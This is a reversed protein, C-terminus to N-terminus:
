KQKDREGYQIDVEPGIEEELKDLQEQGDINNQEFSKKVEWYNVVLHAKYLPESWWFKPIKPLDKEAQIMIEHISDNLKQIEEETEEREGKIPKELNTNTCEQINAIMVRNTLEKRYKRGIKTHKAKVVKVPRSEVAHIEERVIQHDHIDLFMGRHDSKCETHFPRMRSRRTAKTIEYTGLKYVIQKAGIIHSKVGGIGHQHGLIDYVGSVAVFEGFEKEGIESNAGTMFLVEGERKWTKLEELM